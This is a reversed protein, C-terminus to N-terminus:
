LIVCSPNGGALAELFRAVGKEKAVELVDTQDGFHIRLGPAEEAYPCVGNDSEILRVVKKIQTIESLPLYKWAFGSPIFLARKSVRYKEYKTSERLENEIGDLVAGPLLPKPKLLM